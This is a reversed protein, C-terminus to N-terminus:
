AQALSCGAPCTKRQACLPPRHASAEDAHWTSRLWRQVAQVQIHTHPHLRLLGSVTFATRMHGGEPDDALAKFPAMAYAILAAAIFSDICFAVDALTVGAGPWPAPRSPLPPAAWWSRTGHRCGVRGGVRPLRSVRHPVWGDCLQRYKWYYYQLSLPLVETVIATGRHRHSPKCSVCLWSCPASYDICTCLRAPEQRLHAPPCGSHRM